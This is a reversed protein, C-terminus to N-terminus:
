CVTVSYELLAVVMTAPDMELEVAVIVQAGYAGTPDWLGDCESLPGRSKPVREGRVNSNGARTTESREPRLAVALGAVARLM